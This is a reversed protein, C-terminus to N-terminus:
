VTYRKLRRWLIKSTLYLLTQYSNKSIGRDQILDIIAQQLEQINKLSKLTELQILNIVEETHELMKQELAQLHESIM